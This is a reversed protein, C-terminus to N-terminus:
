KTESLVRYLWLVNFRQQEPGPHVAPYLNEFSIRSAAEEQTMGKEIAGRVMHICREIFQRFDRVQKRGCVEGHGPVVYDIDMAEIKKLTEIWEYPLCNSLLPQVGNTFNDGAFFVKERPIYVGIHGETHGPMHILEFTHEGMHLTLRESFTIAPEKVYYDEMLVMGDPDQDLVELRIGEKVELPYTANALAPKSVVQDVIPRNFVAKVKEHSIVTGPFFCNGAMHDPHHHTNIVYQVQGHKDIERAWTVCDTPMMPSDIMVVGDSTVVFGPNSGRDHPPVSLRDEVFTNGAIRRM